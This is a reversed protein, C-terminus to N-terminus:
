ANDVGKAVDFCEFTSLELDDLWGFQPSYGPGLSEKNALKEVLALWTDLM